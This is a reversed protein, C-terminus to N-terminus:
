DLAVCTLTRTVHPLSRINELVVRGAEATSNAELFVIVDFPGTVKHVMKVEKLKSLSDVVSSIAGTATETEILVFAKADM